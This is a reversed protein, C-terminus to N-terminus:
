RIERDTYIGINMNEPNIVRLQLASIGSDGILESLGSDRLLLESGSQGTLPSKLNFLAATAVLNALDVPSAFDAIGKPVAAKKAYDEPLGLGLLIAGDRRAAIVNAKASMRMTRADDWGEIKTEERMFMGALSFLSDLSKKEGSEVIFYGASIEDGAANISAACSIRGDRMVAKISDEMGPPLLEAKDAFKDFLAGAPDSERPFATFCAFPIDLAAVLAVAGEGYLPVDKGKISSRPISGSTIQTAIQMANSYFQIHSSKDDKALAIEATFKADEGKDNKIEAGILIYDDGSNHRKIEFRASKDRLAVTMKEIDEGNDSILVAKEKMGDAGFIFLKEGDDGTELIWGRGNLENDWEIFSDEAGLIKAIQAAAAEADGEKPFIAAGFSGKTEAEDELDGSKVGHFLVAGEKAIDLIACFKGIGDRMEEDGARGAYDDYADPMKDKHKAILDPLRDAFSRLYKATVGPNKLKMVVYMENDPVKPLANETDTVSSGGGFAFFYVAAILVCAFVALALKKM